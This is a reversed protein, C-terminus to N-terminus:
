SERPNFYYSQYRSKRGPRRWNNLVTGLLETGDDYLQQYAELADARATNGSRLVLVAGDAFESIVRADAVELIPPADILILDVRGRAWQFFKGLRPSYMARSVSEPPPGNPVLTLGPFSTPIGLQDSNDSDRSLINTLGWTNPVGFMKHLFPRRFDADVLLVTRGTEALAVALNSAITTKGDAPRPSTVLITQPRNGNGDERMLSALTVRFSEAVEPAGQWAETRSRPFILVSAPELEAQRIGNGSLRAFRRWGGRAPGAEVSPIVGLEPVNLLRRSHGPLRVSRDMKEIVFAIGGSLLMGTIIGLGVNVVPEPKYPAGAPSSPDFNRITNAPISSAVSTENAQLLMANYMQQWTDVDRRLGSYVTAQSAKSSVQDAQGGYSNSLLKERRLASDHDTKIREATAAIEKNLASEILSIQAQVRKVRPNAPTFTTLLAAAEQRLEVLRSQYGSIKGDDIVDALQEPPTRQLLELRSQKAIRDAQIGSLQSQLEQLKSTDLTTGQLVFLNGSSRVYNQLRQQAEQLKTKTEELQGSLWQSAQQFMQIRAQSNEESFESAATNVFNSAIEPNTSDCSIEIIRTGQLSRARFSALARGVGQKM